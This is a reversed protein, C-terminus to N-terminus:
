KCDWEEEFAYIGPSTIGDHRILKGVLLKNKNSTITRESKFTYGDFERIPETAVKKVKDDHYTAVGAYEARVKCIQGSAKAAVPLIPPTTRVQPASGCVQLRMTSQGQYTSKETVTLTGGLEFTSTQDWQSDERGCKETIVIKGGLPSVKVPSCSADVDNYRTKKEIVIQPTQCANKQTNQAYIYKGVLNGPYEASFCSVCFLMFVFGAAPSYKRIHM